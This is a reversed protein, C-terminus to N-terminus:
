SAFQVAFGGVAGGSRGHILVRQGEGVGATEFLAQWATLAALPM